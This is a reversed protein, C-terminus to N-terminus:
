AGIRLLQVPTDGLSVEHHTTFVILGGQACHQMFLKEMLARGVSDLATFPEDLIWLSARSMLLRALALRRKQGASMKRAPTEERDPLGIQDLVDEVAIDHGAPHLARFIELNEECTLDDKIGNHHGVFCLNAHFEERDRHINHGCWRVEGEAAQALGCLIRLLSTKGSGNTGEIQLIRGAPLTFELGSFLTNEGRICTINQASFLPPDSRHDHSPDM